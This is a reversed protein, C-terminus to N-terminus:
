EAQVVVLSEEAAIWEAELQEARQRLKGQRQLLVTLQDRADAGYLAPDALEQELKALEAGVRDLDAALRSAREQLPRLEARRAADRRRQDRRGTADTAPGQETDVSFVATNSCSDGDITPRLPYM